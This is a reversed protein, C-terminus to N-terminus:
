FRWSVLFLASTCKEQGQLFHIMFSFAHWRHEPNDDIFWWFCCTFQLGSPFSVHLFRHIERTSSKFTMFKSSFYHWAIQWKWLWTQKVPASGKLNLCRKQLRLFYFWNALLGTLKVTNVIYGSFDINRGKGLLGLKGFQWSCPFYAFYNIWLCCPM